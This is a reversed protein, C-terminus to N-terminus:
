VTESVESGPRPFLRRIEAVLEQYLRSKAVFGHAGSAQCAMHVEPSDHATVIIVRTAPFDKRLKLTAELGSMDPMQMDMLVLDPRLAEVQALAQRGDGATGVVEIDRQRELFSCIAQVVPPADDVVLTRIRKPEQRGLNPKEPEKGNM